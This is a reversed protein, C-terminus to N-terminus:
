VRRGVGKGSGDEASTEDRRRVKQEAGKGSFVITPVSRETLASKPRLKSIRMARTRSRRIISAYPQASDGAGNWQHGGIPTDPGDPCRTGAFGIVLRLWM